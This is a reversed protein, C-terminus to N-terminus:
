SHHGSFTPHRPTREDESHLWSVKPGGHDWIEQTPTRKSPDLLAQEEETGEMAEMNKGGM